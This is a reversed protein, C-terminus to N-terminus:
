RLPQDPTGARGAWPYVDQFIHRHVALFRTVSWRGAPMPEFFRRATAVAELRDLDAQRVLGPVNRLVTTAPYCYPDAVSDYM